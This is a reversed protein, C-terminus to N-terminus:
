SFNEFNEALPQAHLTIVEAQTSSDEPGDLLHLSPLCSIQILLQHSVGRFDLLIHSPHYRLCTGNLCSSSVQDAQFGHFGHPYWTCRGPYFKVAAGPILRPPTSGVLPVKSCQLNVLKPHDRDDM